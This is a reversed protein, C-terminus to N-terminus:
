LTEDSLQQLEAGYRFIYSALLFVFFVVVFGLEWGYEPTVALIKQGDALQELQYHNMKMYTMLSSGINGVIGYVLTILSLKKLYESISSDFPNGEMMPVMIKRVYHFGACLVILLVAFLACNGWAYGLDIGMEMNAIEISFEGMSVTIKEQVNVNEPNTWYVISLILVGFMAIVLAACNVIQIVKLLRDLKKATDILRKQNM